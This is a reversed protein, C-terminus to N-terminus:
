ARARRRAELVTAVLWAVAFVSGAKQVIPMAASDGPRVFVIDVYLAINWAAAGLFLLGFGHRVPGAPGDRLTSAITILAAFSTASGAALSTVVHVLRAGDYSALTMLVLMAAGTRGLGRIWRRRVHSRVLDAALPWFLYLAVAFCLFSARGFSAATRNPAEAPTETRMLDCWYNTALDFGVAHADAWSGGPYSLVAAALLNAFLVVLALVLAGRRKAVHQATDPPPTANEFDITM